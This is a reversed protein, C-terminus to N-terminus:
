LRFDRPDLGSSRVLEIILWVFLKIKELRERCRWYRHQDDEDHNPDGSSM